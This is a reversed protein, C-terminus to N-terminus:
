VAYGAPINGYYGDTGVIVTDNPGKSSRKISAEYVHYAIAYQVQEAYKRPVNCEIEEKADGHM